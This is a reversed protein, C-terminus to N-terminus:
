NLIINLTDNWFLWAFLALILVLGAYSIAEQIKYSIPSGKIKEIILLVIVGGDVIPLPLLNMVAICSSILGLFYLYYMNSQSAITYSTTVIGLPGSLSTPSVSKTFLGKLTLLTQTIFMSTKKLGMGVADIPGAAKYIEKLNLFPISLTEYKDGAENYYQYGLYQSAEVPKDVNPVIFDTTEAQNNISYNVTVKKGKNKDFLSVIQMFDEVKVGDISEIEAGSPINLPEIGDVGVSGAIVPHAIDLTPTFGVTVESEGTRTFNELPSVTEEISVLQGEDNERLVTIPLKKGNYEKIIEKMRPFTPNDTDGLKIIIDGRKISIPNELADKQGLIHMRWFKLINEKWNQPQSRDSVNDIRLRPVLSYYHATDGYKKEFNLVYPSAFVPFEIKVDSNESVRDIDLTVGTSLTNNILKNMQWSSEVVTGDVATVVDSPKLGSYDYLEKVAQDSAFGDEDPIRLTGPTEIGIQRIKMVSFAPQRAAISVSEKTGDEHRVVFDIPEDKDSLAAAMPISTYDVFTDDNIEVIRDGARLGAHEAPSNKVVGGVIAPSMDLGISFVTMFIFVASIMNFIVGAAVVAIRTMIPKNAYSRPDDSHEVPGSDSQGLMAVFGGAPILGIRYETDSPKPTKSPIMYCIGQDDRSPQSDSEKDDESQKSFLGPLIRIRTGKDTKQFGIVTPPFGISFAEVKIGGAKAVIFHGFEHIMVVFGFGLVVKMVNLFTALNNFIMYGILSVAAVAIAINFWASSNDKTRAAQTNEPKNSNNDSM